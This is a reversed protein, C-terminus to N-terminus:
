HTPKDKTTSASFRTRLSKAMFYLYNKFIKNKYVYHSIEWWKKYNERMIKEFVFSNDRRMTDRIYNEYVMPYSNDHSQNQLFNIIMSQYQNYERAYVLEEYVLKEDNSLSLRGPSM